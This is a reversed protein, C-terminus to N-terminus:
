LIARVKERLEDFTGNNEIVGDLDKDQIERQETESAHHPVGSTTNDDRTDRVIRYVKGGMEQVGEVENKFRCDSVYLGAPVEQDLGAWNERKVFTPLVDWLPDEQVGRLKAVYARKLAFQVHACERMNRVCDSGLAQLAYRPSLHGAYEEPARQAHCLPCIVQERKGHIAETAEVTLEPHHFGCSPCRIFSIMGDEENRRDSPGWLQEPRWGCTWMLFVKLHDAFAVSYFNHDIVLYRGATNKGSGAEGLFGILM